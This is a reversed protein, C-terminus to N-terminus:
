SNLGAAEAPNPAAPIQLPLTGEAEHGNRRTEAPSTSVKIVGAAFDPEPLDDPLLHVYTRLTFGPDATASSASYRSRTGASPVAADGGHAPLRSLRALRRDRSGRAAPKLVGSM